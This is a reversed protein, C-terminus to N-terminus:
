GRSFNSIINPAATDFGVVDMMGADSPDAITFGNSVMGVVVLKAPIGMKQRYEKLAQFPHIDGAWTESDTYICFTDIKIGKKQAYVMPLSCDTGGFPLNSIENVVSDLRQRPSIALETLAETSSVKTKRGFTSGYMGGWGGAGGTFATFMYDEETSATILAMAASGIRPTLGPVGAINGGGMSGSVDLALMTRKGSPEVSKFSLYFAKDLADVIKGVPNWTHKSRSYDDHGGSKYALMASLVAIPHVRGKVLREQDRLREAVLKMADSMNEILGIRTMNALNRIMAHMPMNPLMAAWVDPEKLFETPIMERTLRHDVILKVIEKKSKAKKAAELAHVIELGETGSGNLEGKVIWKYLEGHGESSPKVHALRLLDRNSWGNRSQYKAAQYAVKGLPKNNYWRGIANKTGRGWGGFAEIADAFNFLHTGIRCVKPLADRAAKRTADDGLKACMALAFIAPDNKPARNNVSVDVIMNVTRIGDADICRRVAAANDKVSVKETAYYTNGEAGLILFQMLRDWDDLGFSFGGASNAKQNPAAKESQPTKKTSVHKQYQM